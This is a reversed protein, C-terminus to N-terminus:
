QCFSLHGHFLTEVRFQKSIEELLQNRFETGNDSLLVYPATSVSFLHTVLGHTVSKASKDKLPALVVCVFFYKSGQHSAPLQLLDISVVNWPSDLPSYELLPAPRPVAGKIQAYKVCQSIYADINM